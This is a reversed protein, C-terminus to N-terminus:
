QPTNQKNIVTLTSVCLEYVTKTKDTDAITHERSQLHGHIELETGVTFDKAKLANYNWCIVPIYDSKRYQRNVSICLQTIDFDHTTKKYVPAKCIGGIIMVENKYTKDQEDNCLVIYRAFIRVNLSIHGDEETKNFTRIEGEVRVFDNEKINCVDQKHANIIFTDVNDSDKRKVQLEFSYIDNDKCSHSLYPSSIVEGWVEIRNNIM